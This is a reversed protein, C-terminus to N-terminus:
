GFNSVPFDMELIDTEATVTETPSATKIQDPTFANLKMTGLEFTPNGASEEIVNNLAIPDDKLEWLQHMEPGLTVIQEESMTGLKDAIHKLTESWEFPKNNILTTEPDLINNSDSASAFTGSLDKEIKYLYQNLPTDFRGIAM